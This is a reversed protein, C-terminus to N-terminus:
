QSCVKPQQLGFLLDNGIMKKRERMISAEDNRYNQTIFTINAMKEGLLEM